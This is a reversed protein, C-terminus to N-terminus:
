ACASLFRQWDLGLRTFDLVQLALAAGGRAGTLRGAWLSVGATEEVETSGALVSVAVQLLLGFGVVFFSNLLYKLVGQDFAIRFNDLTPHSPFPIAKPEPTGGPTLAVSFGFLLNTLTETM